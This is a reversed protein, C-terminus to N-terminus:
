KELEGEERARKRERKEYIIAEKPEFDTSHCSLYLLLRRTYTERDKKEAREGRNPPPLAKKLPKATVPFLSPRHKLQGRSRMATAGLSM